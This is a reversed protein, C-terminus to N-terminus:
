KKGKKTNVKNGKNTVRQKRIKRQRVLEEVKKKKQSLRNFRHVSSGIEKTLILSGLKSGVHEQGVLVGGFEKGWHVRVERGVLEQFIVSRRGWTILAGRRKSLLRKRLGVEVFNGKWGARTM